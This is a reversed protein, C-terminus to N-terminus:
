RDEEEAMATLRACLREMEDSLRRWATEAHDLDQSRGMDELTRAAEFVPVAQFNGAMGKLAHASRHLRDADNEQVAARIDQMMRPHDEMFMGVAERFFELDDDFAAVVAAKDPLPDREVESTDSDAGKPQV